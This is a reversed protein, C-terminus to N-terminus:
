VTPMNAFSRVRAKPDKAPAPTQVATVNWIQTAYESITRDSSFKGSKAIGEIAMRNWKKQDRYTADVKEQADLYSYFDHSVLYNDGGNILNDILHIFAQTNGGFTGCKITEYVRGLRSGVYSRDGSHM